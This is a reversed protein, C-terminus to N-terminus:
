INIIFDPITVEDKKEKVEVEQMYYLLNDPGPLPLTSATDTKAFVWVKYKGKRLSSFEYSGDYSTRIDDFQVSDEATAIYVRLDGMYGEYILTKGPTFDYVYVKGKISALGGPGPEKKCSILVISLLFPLVIKLKAM